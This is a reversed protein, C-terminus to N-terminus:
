VRKLDCDINGKKCRYWFLCDLCQPEAKDDARPRISTDTTNTHTYM